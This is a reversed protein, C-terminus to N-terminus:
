KWCVQILYIKPECIGNLQALTQMLQHWLLDLWLNYGEIQTKQKKLKKKILKPWM